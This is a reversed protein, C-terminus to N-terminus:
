DSLPTQTLHNTIKWADGEKYLVRLHFKKEGKATEMSQVIGLKEDLYTIQHSLSPFPPNFDPNAAFWEEFYAQLKDKTYVMKGQPTVWHLNYAYDKVMLSADKSMWGKVYNDLAEYIIDADQQVDQDASQAGLTVPVLINALLLLLWGRSFVHSTNM